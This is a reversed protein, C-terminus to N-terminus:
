EATVYFIKAPTTSKNEIIASRVNASVMFIGPKKQTGVNLPEITIAESSDLLIELKQDSEIYLFQKSDKFISLASPNNSVNTEAPLSNLSFFDVFQDAVDTIEYTGQTVSSFGAVIEIKDGIQVGDQSHIRVEDEFGAGLLINSEALGSDNDVTFSTATLSLITFKGQNSVNFSEGIRVVDGVQAGGAILDLPTGATSSFTLLRANKTVSIETTADAGTSRLVRFGPLTGSNYSLRYTNSTGPKISLDWTTTTDDTTSVQGSFLSHSQGPNLMLSKSSPEEVDVGQIDTQWKFNNRSPNNSPNQDEYGNLHVILNLKSM